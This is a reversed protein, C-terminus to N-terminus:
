KTLLTGDSFAGLSDGFVVSSICCGSNQIACILPTSGIRSKNGIQACRKSCFRGRGLAVDSPYLLRVKGCQQCTREIKPM